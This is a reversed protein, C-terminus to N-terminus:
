VMLELLGMKVMLELHGMLGMKVMLELLVLLVMKVMLGLLVKLAKLALSPILLAPPPVLRLRFFGQLVHLVLVQKLMRKFLAWQVLVVPVLVVLVSLELLAIAALPPDLWRRLGQLVLKALILVMLVLM